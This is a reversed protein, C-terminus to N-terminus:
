SLPAPLWTPVFQLGCAGQAHTSANCHKCREAGPGACLQSPSRALRGASLLWGWGVQAIQRPDVGLPSSKSYMAERGANWFLSAPQDHATCM